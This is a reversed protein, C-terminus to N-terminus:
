AQPVVHKKASSRRRLDTGNTANITVDRVDM